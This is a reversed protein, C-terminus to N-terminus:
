PRAKITDDFWVRLHKAMGEGGIPAEHLHWIPGNQNTISPRKSKNEFELQGGPHGM